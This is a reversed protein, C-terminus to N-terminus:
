LVTPIPKDKDIKYKKMAKEAYKSSILQEKALASLAYTVVYEKNVEFFKRLKKRSDSRGYGDTGFSYFPKSLYPRIQDTYARIYDSAAIILGDRKELCKQVYSTESKESPNLLNKRETEMGDRRLENFSTVSWVDSDVGYEKSLIEAAAIMERLITGSGLLQIKIKGNNNFEKFLYMGKLIGKESNEPIQPHKYNENMVTIYYFVNEQNDHMKKLGDRLIVALEYAFTPDYSKCNPITSAFLHSHGDQHQLGEGALTTRGSTAGILFGRTQADGAAWALDMVRQFGFM